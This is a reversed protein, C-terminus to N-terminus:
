IHSEALMHSSNKQRYCFYEAWMKQEQIHSLESQIVLNFEGPKSKLSTQSLTLHCKLEM